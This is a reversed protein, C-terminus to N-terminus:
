SCLPQWKHEQTQSGTFKTPGSLTTAVLKHRVFDLSFTNRYGEFQSLQLGVEQSLPLTVEGRDEHRRNRRVDAELYAADIPFQASSPVVHPDVLFCKKIATTVHDKWDLLPCFLGHFVKTTKPTM